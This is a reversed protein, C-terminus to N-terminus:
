IQAELAVDRDAIAQRWRGDRVGIRLRPRTSCMKTRLPKGPLARDECGHMPTLYRSGRACLDAGCGKYLMEGHVPTGTFSGGHVFVADLRHRM